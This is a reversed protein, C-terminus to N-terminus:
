MGGAIAECESAEACGSRACSEYASKAAGTSGMNQYAAGLVYYASGGAGKSAAKRALQAARGNNGANLAAKAEGLLQGGLKGEDPDAADATGTEAAAAEPAADVAAEEAADGADAADGAEDADAGADEVAASSSPVASALPSESFSAPPPATTSAPATATTAPKGADPKPATAKRIVAALGIVGAIAIVAVVISRARAPPVRSPRVEVVDLDDHLDPAERRHHEAHIEAESKDFFAPHPEDDEEHVPAPTVPAAVKIKADSKRVAAAARAEAAPKEIAERMAAVAADSVEKPVAISIATKALDDKPPLPPPEQAPKVPEAAQPEPKAADAEAPAPKPAEVMAPEAKAPAPSEEIEEGGVAPPPETKPRGSAIVQATRIAPESKSGSAVKFVARPEPPESAPKKPRDSAPKAAPQKPQSKAAPKPAEEKKAPAGGSPSTAPAESEAAPAPRSSVPSIADRLASTSIRIATSKLPNPETSPKAQSLPIPEPPNSSPEAKEPAPAPKAVPETAHELAALALDVAGDDRGRAPPTAWSDGPTLARQKGGTREPQLERDHELARMAVEIADETSVRGSPAPASVRESEAPAVHAAQMHTSPPVVEDPRASAYNGSKNEGDLGPVVAHEDSHAAGVPVLLGEFYLKSITSLTSLDEFPSADVLEMVSRHGDVLRLIGNLEDPIEGLRDLLVAREVEFVTSLPPLQELLRGWEDVRRMGEMLLAQMSTTITQERAVSSAPGFEVEFTGENWILTRYVAEEGELKGLQADVLQGDRFWLNAVAAGNKLRATGSKRSVEITQLLDVVAMDEISGAFRTRGSGRTSTLREQSRKSLLLSVRTLLERVFIPKTLYDEVGLELGRVKDEISKDSALFVVPITSWEPHEKLRRVLLFGDGGQLRTETLILDPTSLEVMGLADAVTHSTTVTYGAKKLSVELVRMGRPDSDVLLLQQKAL